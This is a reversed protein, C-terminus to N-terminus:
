RPDSFSHKMAAPAVTRIRHLPETLRAIADLRAEREQGAGDANMGVLAPLVNISQEILALTERAAQASWPAESHDGAAEVAANLTLLNTQFAIEDIARVVDPTRKRRAPIENM